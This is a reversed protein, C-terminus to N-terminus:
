HCTRLGALVWECRKLYDQRTCTAERAIIGREWILAYLDQGTLDPHIGGAQQAHHLLDLAFARARDCLGILVPSDPEVRLFVDNAAPEDFQLLWVRRLYEQLRDVPGADLSHVAAIIGDVREAVLEDVVADILGARGGFRHYITGKAKGARRAVEELPPTLGGERFVTLAAQRISETNRQADARM